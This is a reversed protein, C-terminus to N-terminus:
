WLIPIIQQFTLLKKLKNEIIRGITISWVISKLVLFLRDFFTFFTELPTLNAAIIKNLKIAVANATARLYNRIFNPKLQM